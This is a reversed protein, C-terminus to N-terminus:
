SKSVESNLNGQLKYLAQQEVIAPDELEIRAPETVIAESYKGQFIVQDETGSVLDVPNFMRVRDGISIQEWHVPLWDEGVKVEIRRCKEIPIM